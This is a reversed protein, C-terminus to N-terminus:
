EEEPRTREAVQEALKRLGGRAMIEELEKRAELFPQLIATLSNLGDISASLKGHLTNLEGLVAFATSRLNSLQTAESDEYSSAAAALAGSFQELCSTDAETVSITVRLEATLATELQDKWARTWAALEGVMRIENIMEKTYRVFFATFPGRHEEPLSDIMGQLETTIGFAKSAASQEAPM